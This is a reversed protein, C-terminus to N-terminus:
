NKLLHKLANELEPYRFQFGTEMLKEPKVRSSSLLLENASEGVALQLVSEPVTMFTPRHLVRGLTKTFEKNTLPQPAVINVPGRIANTTLCHYIARIVDELSIWSMYQKGSGFTGGLGLKFPLLMKQLAGGEPSLVIGFRLNVVRSGKDAAPKTALEWEQALDALFGRGKSSTEDLIQDNRNGYYGIASACLFTQPPMALKSFAKSLLFTSDLRSKRIKAKKAESWRGTVSEGALHIVANIGELSQPNIQRNEPDWFLEFGSNDAPHRVLRIVQNGQQILFKRLHSGILGSSGSMLINM